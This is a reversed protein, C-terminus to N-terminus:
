IGKATMNHRKNLMHVFNLSVPNQKLDKNQALSIMDQVQQTGMVYISDKRFRPSAVTHVRWHSWIEIQIQHTRQSHFRTYGSDISFDLLCHEAVHILIRAMFDDGWLAPLNRKIARNKNLPIPQLWLPSAHHEQVCVWNVQEFHKKKTTQKKQQKPGSGPDQKTTKAM